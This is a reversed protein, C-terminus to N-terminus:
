LRNILISALHTSYYLVIKALFVSGNERQMGRPPTPSWINLHLIKQCHSNHHMLPMSGKHVLSRTATGDGNLPAELSGGYGGHDLSVRKGRFSCRGFLKRYGKSVEVVRAGIPHRSRKEIWGCRSSRWNISFILYFSAIDSFVLFNNNNLRQNEQKGM